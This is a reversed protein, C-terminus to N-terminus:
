SPGSMGGELQRRARLTAVRPPPIITAAAARPHPDSGGFSPSTGAAVTPALVPVPVPSVAVDVDVAPSSVVDAGVVAVDPASTVLVDVPPGNGVPDLEPAMPVDLVPASVVVPPTPEPPGYASHWFSSSQSAPRRHMLNPCQLVCHPDSSPQGAGGASLSAVGVHMAFVQVNDHSSPRAQGAAIIQWATPGECSHTLAAHSIPNTDMIQITPVKEGNVQTM